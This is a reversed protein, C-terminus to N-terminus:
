FRSMLDKVKDIEEATPTSSNIDFAAVEDESITSANGGGLVDKAAVLSVKVEVIGEGADIPVRIVKGDPSFAGDFIEMIKDYVIKKENTGKAAM